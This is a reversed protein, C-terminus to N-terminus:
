NSGKPTAKTTASPKPAAQFLDAAQDLGARATTTNPVQLQVNKTIDFIVPDYNLSLSFSAPRTDSGVDDNLGFSSLVINSFAKTPPSDKDIVYSTYKLTDVYKNVSSTM